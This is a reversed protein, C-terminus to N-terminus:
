GHSTESPPGSEDMRLTNHCAIAAGPRKRCILLTQSSDPQGGIAVSNKRQVVSVLPWSSINQSVESRNGCSRSSARRENLNM